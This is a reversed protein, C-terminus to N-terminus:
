PMRSQNHCASHVDGVQRGHGSVHLGMGEQLLRTPLYSHSPPEPVMQKAGYWEGVAIVLQTGGSLKVMVEM